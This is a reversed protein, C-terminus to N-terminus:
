LMYRVLECLYAYIIFAVIKYLLAITLLSGGTILLQIIISVIVALGIMILWYHRQKKLLLAAAVASVAIYVSQMQAFINSVETTIPAFNIIFSALIVILSIAFIRFCVKKSM